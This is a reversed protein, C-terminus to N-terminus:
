DFVISLSAVCLPAAIMLGRFPKEGITVVTVGGQQLPAAIMLGRFTLKLRGFAM